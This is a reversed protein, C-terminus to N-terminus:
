REVPSKRNMKGPVYAQYVNSNGTHKYQIFYVKDDDLKMDDLYLLYEREPKYWVRGSENKLSAKAPGKGKIYSNFVNKRKSFFCVQDVKFNRIYIYIYDSRERLAKPIHETEIMNRIFDHVNLGVNLKAEVSM